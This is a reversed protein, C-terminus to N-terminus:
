RLSALRLTHISGTVSKHCPPKNLVESLLTKISQSKLNAWAELIPNKKLVTEAIPIILHGSYAIIHKNM